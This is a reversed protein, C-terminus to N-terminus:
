PSRRYYSNLSASLKRAMEPAIGGYGSLSIGVKGRIISGGRVLNGGGLATESKGFEILGNRSREYIVAVVVPFQVEEILAEQGPLIRRFADATLAEQFKVFFGDGNDFDVKLYRGRPPCDIHAAGPDVTWVNDEMWARPEGHMSPMKFNLLLFGDEDRNFFVCPEGNIEVLTDVQYYAVSGVVAVLDRSLYDFEGVVPLASSARGVKLLELYENPYYGGDAKAAHNSCLAIMGAPDHHHKERWPPSFHHFTLYPSGCDRIPCRFGVESCLEKRVAKPIKRGLEHQPDRANVEQDMNM